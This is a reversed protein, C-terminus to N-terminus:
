STANGALRERIGISELFGHTRTSASSQLFGELDSPHDLDWGLRSNHVIRIDAETQLAEMIHFVFSNHGFRSPFRDPPSRLIANTGLLDHSPALVVDYQSAAALIQEIDATRLLPLDAPLRLVSSVGLRCLRKSANDISESESIQSEEELVQWGERHALGAAAESSTVIAVPADLGRVVEILDRFMAWSLNEREQETLLPAMRRKAGVPNKLPILITTNL